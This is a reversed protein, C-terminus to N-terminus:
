DAEEIFEPMPGFEGALALSTACCVINMMTHEWSNWDVHSSIHRQGATKQTTMRILRAVSDKLSEKDRETGLDGANVKLWFM